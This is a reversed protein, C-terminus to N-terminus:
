GGSAVCQLNLTGPELLGAVGFRGAQMFDQATELSNGVKSKTQFIVPIAKAAEDLGSM